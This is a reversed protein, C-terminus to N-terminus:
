RDPGMRRASVGDHRIGAFIGIVSYNEEDFEEM